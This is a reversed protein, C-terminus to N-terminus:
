VHKSEITLTGPYFSGQDQVIIGEILETSSPSGVWNTTKLQKQKEEYSLTIRFAPADEKGSVFICSDLQEQIFREANITREHSELTLPDTYTFCSPDTLIRHTQVSTRIDDHSSQYSPTCAQFSFIIVLICFSFLFTRVLTHLITGSM